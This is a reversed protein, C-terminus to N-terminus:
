QKVEASIRDLITAPPVLRRRLLHAQGLRPPPALQSRPPLRPAPLLPLHRARVPFGRRRRLGGRRLLRPLGRGHVAGGPARGLNKLLPLCRFVAIVAALPSSGRPEAQFVPGLQPLVPVGARPERIRAYCRWSILVKFTSALCLCNLDCM